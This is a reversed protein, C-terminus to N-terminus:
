QNAGKPICNRKCFMTGQYDYVIGRMLTRKCTPCQFKQNQDMAMFMIASGPLQAEKTKQNSFNTKAPKKAAM